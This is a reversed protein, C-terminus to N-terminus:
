PPIQALKQLDKYSTTIYPILPVRVTIRSIKECEMGRLHLLQIFLLITICRPLSCICLHAVVALTIFNRSQLFDSLRKTQFTFLQLHCFDRQNEALEVPCYWKSLSLALCAVKLISVSMNSERVPMKKPLGPSKQKHCLSLDESCHGMEGTTYQYTWTIDLPQMCYKGRGLLLSLM